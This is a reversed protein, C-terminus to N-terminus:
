FHNCNFNLFSRYKVARNSNKSYLPFDRKMVTNLLNQKIKDKLFNNMVIFLLESFIDM